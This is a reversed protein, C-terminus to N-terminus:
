SLRYPYAAAIPMRRGSGFAKSTVKLGPAAQRRKYESKAVAQIVWSVTKPDLGEHIIEKMSFGRDLALTLIRDLIEYPPLIDQDKQDPKLEASPAKTFVRAPITQRRLNRFKALGYVMTKPVDALVSLGGSMDGYLTCYGVSLESKNGPSLTLYGFKNSLAMLINGRIRAQINEETIDEAKGKFPDKLMDKYALFVPTIPVTLFSAGLNGALASADDMSAQSTYPSPMSVGLVNEPGVADSALCCVLSSDIGGSLGLVAKRFCCKGMYDRIGLVLAEYILAIRNHPRFPPLFEPRGLDITRIEEQFSPLLAILRGDGDFAMSRGDFILEDNGGIQNCVVFPKKYKRVHNRILRHRATEKGDCFPSASINIFVSAEKQALLAVPDVAYIRRLPTEVETWADECITIGLKENKVTCVEIEDSSDFYREEDFV